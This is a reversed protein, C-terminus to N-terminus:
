DSDRPTAARRSRFRALPPARLSFARRDRAFTTHPGTRHHSAGYVVGMTIWGAFHATWRLFPLSLGVCSAAIATAVDGANQHEAARRSSPVDSAAGVHVRTTVQSLPSFNERAHSEHLSSRFLRAPLPFRYRVTDGASAFTRALAEEVALIREALLGLIMTAWTLAALAFFM